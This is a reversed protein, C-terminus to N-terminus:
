LGYAKYSSSPAAPPPMMASSANKRPGKRSKMASSLTSNNKRTSRQTTDHEEEMITDCTSYNQDIGSLVRSSIVTRIKDTVTRNSSVASDITGGCNVFARAVAVMLDKLDKQMKLKQAEVKKDFDLLFVNLKKEREKQTLNSGEDGDPLKPKTQNKIAATRRKRPMKSKNAM